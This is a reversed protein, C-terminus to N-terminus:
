AKRGKMKLLDPAKLYNKIIMDDVKDPLDIITANLMNANNCITVEDVDPDPVYFVNAGELRKVLPPDLRKQAGIVQIPNDKNYLRSFVVAAKKEGEVLIVTPSVDLGPFAWFMAPPLGAEQRYKDSTRGVIRYKINVPKKDYPVRIPITLALGEKFDPAVGFMYWGQWNVNIGEQEWLAIAEDNNLIAKEHQRWKESQQFAILADVQQEAKTAAREARDAAREARIAGLESRLADTMQLEDGTLHKLAAMFGPLKHYKQCWDFIDGHEGCGFCHYKTPESLNIKFSPTDEDHFPCNWSLWGSVNDGPGLEKEIDSILNEKLLSLDSM